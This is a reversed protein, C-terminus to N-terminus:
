VTGQIRVVASTFAGSQRDTGVDGTSLLIFSMSPTSGTPDLYTVQYWGVFGETKLVRVLLGAAGTQKVKAPSWSSHPLGGMEAETDHESTRAQIRVKAM